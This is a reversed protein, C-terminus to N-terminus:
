ATEKKPEVVELEEAPLEIAYWNDKGLEYVVLYLQRGRVGIPGRDERVQGVFARNGLPFRVKDGVQIGASSM